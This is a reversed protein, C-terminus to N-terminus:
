WRSNGWETNETRELLISFKGGVVNRISKAVAALACNMEALRKREVPMPQQPFRNMIQNEPKRLINFISKM